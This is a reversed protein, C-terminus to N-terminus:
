KQEIRELCAPLNLNIHWKLLWTSCCSLVEKLVYFLLMHGGWWKKGDCQSCLLQGPIKMPMNILSRFAHSYASPPDLLLALSLVCCLTVLVPKSLIVPCLFIWTCQCSGSCGYASLPWGHIISCQLSLHTSEPEGANGLEFCKGPIRPPQGYFHLWTRILPM